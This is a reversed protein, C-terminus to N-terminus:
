NLLHLIHTRTGDGIGDTKVSISLEKKTEM